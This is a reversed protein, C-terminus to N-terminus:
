EWILACRATALVGAAGYGCGSPGSSGDLPLYTRQTSVPTATFPTQDAVEGNYFSLIYPVCRIDPTFGFHRMVQYGASTITNSFAGPFLAYASADNTSALVYSYRYLYNSSTYYFHFGTTTPAGSADCTRFVAFLTAAGSSYGRKWTFWAAGSVACAASYYSSAGPGTAPCIAQAALYATGNLTGAGNTGSAASVRIQPRGSSSGTGFEIKVYLPKSGHLSDNLYRIEYGAYTNTGPITATGWDIQGTNASKPFGASTLMASLEAGWTRFDTDTSHALGTNNSSTTM